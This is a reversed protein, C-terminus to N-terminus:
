AVPQWAPLRPRPETSGPGPLVRKQNGGEPALTWLARVGNRLYVIRSGDPSWTASREDRGPTNTIRHLRLGIAAVTFINLPHDDRLTTRCFVILDEEPSWAPDLNKGGAVIVHRGEGDPRMVVVDTRRDPKGTLVFGVLQRGDPSWDTVCDPHHSDIARFLHGDAAAIFSSRLDACIALRRGDPSWALHRVVEVSDPFRGPRLIVQKGAGTADVVLVRPRARAGVILRDAIALRRGDPSWAIDTIKRGARLTTVTADGLGDPGVTRVESGAVYAILGNTGPSVAAAPVLPIMALSSGALACGLLLSRPSAM